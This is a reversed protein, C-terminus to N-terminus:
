GKGATATPSAAGAVIDQVAIKLNRPLIGLTKRLRDFQEDTLQIDGVPIAAAAARPPPTGRGAAEARGGAAARAPQRHHQDGRLAVVQEVPARERADAGHRM